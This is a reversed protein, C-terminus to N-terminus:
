TWGEPGIVTVPMRDLEADTPAEWLTEIFDFMGRDVHFQYTEAQEANRIQVRQWRLDKPVDVFHLRYSLGREEAWDAFIARETSNTLGCDFVSPVDLEALRLAVTRMQACNRQVREYFWEFRLEDPKDPNHLQEMWEDISFRVGSVHQALRESYTSKGAGTPGCVLNILERM